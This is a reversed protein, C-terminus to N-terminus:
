RTIHKMIEDVLLRTGAGTLHFNDSYLDTGDFRFVCRGIVFTDCLLRNPYIRVLNSHEGVRDLIEITERNRAKYLQYSTSFGADSLMLGPFREKLILREGIYVRANWGVEPIPYILIIKKGSKIFKSIGELYKAKLLEKRTNKDIHRTRTNDIIVDVWADNKWIGGEGNDFNSGELWATWHSFLIVTEINKKDSLFTFTERNGEPCKHSTGLDVRYLDAIPPCSMFSMNIFGLGKDSLSKELEPSLSYALSDGLLAGTIVSRDGLICKDSINVYNGVDSACKNRVFRPAPNTAARISDLLANSFRYTFGDNFHGTLGFIILLCSYSASYFFIQKRTFCDRTRLPKEVYKWTLYALALGAIVLAALLEKSPEVMSGYRAFVFLPQHWLYASYSILGIGVLLRSSLLRGVFTQQKAYLIILAAGTTPILALVNPYPINKDFAWVAYAILLLGAISALQSEKTQQASEAHFAMLAGILLEWGRTPLLFFTAEPSNNSSWLAAALSLIAMAVLASVILRRGARWTLLLFIPFLLYYQEEVALSWTHLLPRFEATTEFYGSAHWFYINSSFTFVAALSQSFSKMDEPLLFLWAVPICVTVVVFLAPLIRRARREYFNALTFTGAQMESLIISTILYGSIVFFVDVGVFGGSFSEFGAHFLIVPLVAFARLGDIEPRYTM